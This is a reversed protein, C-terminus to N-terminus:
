GFYSRLPPQRLVAGDPVTIRHLGELHLRRCLRSQELGRLRHHFHPQSEYRGARHDVTDDGVTRRLYTLASDITDYPNLRMNAVLEAHPPIVNAAKSGNMQTFAVTTRMLANLEGGSKKCLMNLVPKFLWLNAFIMRFVFSSHRGLTDFMQAVPPTIHYPFPHKLVKCCAAALRDIPANPKPASAHGGTSTTRYQANLMGNEAIGILGCPATVGPFVNEVVGGGEDVVMSPTIGHEEFWDVINRAGKGRTSVYWDWDEMSLLFLVGDNPYGNYDYFDDAYDQPTMGHLTNTTVAVVKIGYKNYLENLRSTIDSEESSSLLDALDVFAPTGSVTDVSSTYAESNVIRVVKKYYEEIGSSTSVANYFTNFLDSSNAYILDQQPGLAEIDYYEDNMCLVVTNESNHVDYIFNIAYQQVDSISADFIFYIDIGYDDRIHDLDDELRSEEYADIIGEGDKGIIIHDSGASIASASFIVLLCTFLVTLIKKM